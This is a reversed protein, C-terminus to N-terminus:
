GTVNKIKSNKCMKEISEYIKEKMTFERECKLTLYWLYLLVIFIIINKYYLIIISSTASLIAICVFSIDQIFMYSKKLGLTIHLIEQLIRGGDLPYIPILNFIFILLNAYFINANENFFNVGFHTCILVILCLMLNFFPGAVGILIKKLSILSGKGIKKNYDDYNVKFKMKIGYPVIEISEIKYKLIIAMIIHGFEHILAFMMILAYMEIKKMLLFILAFLFIKLDIKIHM